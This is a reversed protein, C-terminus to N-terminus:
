TYTGVKLSKYWKVQTNWCTRDQVAETLDHRIIDDDAVTSGFLVYDGSVNNVRIAELIDWVDGQALGCRWKHSSLTAFDHLIQMSDANAWGADVLWM